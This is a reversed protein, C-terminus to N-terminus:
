AEEVDLSWGFTAEEGLELWRLGAAGPGGNFADAAMSMPEVALVEPNEPTFLQVWDMDPSSVTLALGEHSVRVRWPSATPGTFAHDVEGHGLRQAIRLDPLPVGPAHVGVLEIPLLRDPDVLLVQDFGVELDWDWRPVRDLRLYPHCGYGFPLPTGTLNRGTCRVDLGDPRVRLDLWLAMRGPWGEQEPLTTTLVLHDDEYEEAQWDLQHVLGHIANHRAPETIRLEQVRGSRDTWRGNAVRGPWPALQAGDMALPFEGSPFTSLLDRGRHQFRRIFAGRRTITAEAAGASITWDAVANDDM